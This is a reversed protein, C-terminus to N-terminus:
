PTMTVPGGPIDYRKGNLHCAGTQGAVIRRLQEYSGPIPGHASEIAALDPDPTRRHAQVRAALQRARHSVCGDAGALDRLAADRQPATSFAHLRGGARSRLDLLGDLNSQPEALRKRLALVLWARLIPPLPQGAALLAACDELRARAELPKM